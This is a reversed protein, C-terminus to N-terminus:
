TIWSLVGDIVYDIVMFYKSQNLKLDMTCWCTISFYEYRSFTITQYKSAQGNNINNKSKTEYRNISM